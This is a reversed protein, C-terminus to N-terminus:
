RTSPASTRSASRCASSSTRRPRARRDRLGRRARPVRADARHGPPRGAHGDGSRPVGRPARRRAPPDPRPTRHDGQGLHEQRRPRRARHHHPHEGRHRHRHLRRRHRCRRRRDPPSRRVSTTDAQVVHTLTGAHDQVIDANVDVGLVEYGLDVLTSALSSGFRGLGIVIIEGEHRVRESRSTRQADAHIIEDSM